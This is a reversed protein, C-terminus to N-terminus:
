WRQWVSNIQFFFSANLLYFVEGNFTELQEYTTVEKHAFEGTNRCEMHLVETQTTEKEVLEQQGGEGDFTTYYVSKEHRIVERKRWLQKDGIPPNTKGDNPRIIVELSSRDDEQNNSRHRTASSAPPNDTHLYLGAPLSQDVKSLDIEHVEM